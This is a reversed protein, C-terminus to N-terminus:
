GLYSLEKKKQLKTAENGKNVIEHIKEEFEEAKKILPKYDVKLGLYNDLVKIAKAAAKSDPLNSYTETFICSFHRKELKSLLAATVGLVVGEKLPKVKIAEFRKEHKNTYYYAEPEKKQAGMAAVGEISIIEKANLEKALRTITDAIAWEIGAVNTLANLIIINHKKSYYIELPRVVKSEHLAIMPSLDKSWVKGIPKANLHDILFGTTITGVLGFGPFGEIIIPKRPRKKLIYEM